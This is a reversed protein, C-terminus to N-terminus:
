IKSLPHKTAHARLISTKSRCSVQYSAIRFPCLSSAKFGAQSVAIHSTQCKAWFNRMTETTRLSHLWSKFFDQAISGKHEDLFVGSQVIKLKGKAHSLADIPGISCGMSMACERRWVM